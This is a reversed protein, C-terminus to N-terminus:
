ITPIRRALVTGRDDLAVSSSVSRSSYPTCLLRPSCCCFWLVSASFLRPLCPSPPIPRFCASSCSPLRRPPPPVSFIGRCGLVLVPAPWLWQCVMYRVMLDWGESLDQRTDIFRTNIPAKPHKAVKSPYRPQPAVELSGVLVAAAPSPINILQASSRNEVSPRGSTGRRQEMAKCTGRALREKCCAMLTRLTHRCTQNSKVGRKDRELSQQQTNLIQAEGSIVVVPHRM